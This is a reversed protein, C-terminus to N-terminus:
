FCKQLDKDRYMEENITYWENEVMIEKLIVSMDLM